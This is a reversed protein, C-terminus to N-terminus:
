GFFMYRSAKAVLALSVNVSAAAKLLMILFSADRRISGCPMSPFEGLLLHRALCRTFAPSVEVPCYPLKGEGLAPLKVLVCDFSLVCSSFRRYDNLRRSNLSNM